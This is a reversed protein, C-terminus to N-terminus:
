QRRRFRLAGLLAGMAAFAAWDAAYGLGPNLACGMSAGGDLYFRGHDSPGDALPAADDGPKGPSAPTEPMSEKPPTREGDAPPDYKVPPPLVVHCTSDCGDGDVINGDDCQEGLYEQVIGDGCGELIVPPDKPNVEDIPLNVRPPIDSKTYVPPPPDKLGLDLSKCDTSCGFGGDCEEGVEIRGNGCVPPLNELDVALCLRTAAFLLSSVLGTMLLLKKM